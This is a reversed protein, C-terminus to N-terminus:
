KASKNTFKMLTELTAVTNHGGVAYSGTALHDVEYYGIEVLDGAKCYSGANAYIIYTLANQVKAVFGTEDAYIVEVIETKMEAQTSEFCGTASIVTLLSVLILAVSLIKKM